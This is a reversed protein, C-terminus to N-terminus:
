VDEKLKIKQVGSKYAQITKRGKSLSKLDSVIQKKESDIYSMIQLDQDLISKIIQDKTNLLSQINDRVEQPISPSVQKIKESLINEIKEIVGLLGERAMYFENIQSFDGDKSKKLQIKNLSSFQSLYRNRESLLHIIEDTMIGGWMYNNLVKRLFSM